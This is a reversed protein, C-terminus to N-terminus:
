KETKEAQAEHKERAPTENNVAVVTGSIADVNVETIDRSSPTAIDFSWILQGHERELESSKIVGHPVKRLATASAQAQTITAEKMLAVQSDGAARAYPVSVISAVLLVSISLPNNAAMILARRTTKAMPVSVNASRTQQCIATQVIFTGIKQSVHATVLNAPM